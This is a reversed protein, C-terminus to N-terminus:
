HFLLCNDNLSHHLFYLNKLTLQLLFLVNYFKLHIDYISDRM